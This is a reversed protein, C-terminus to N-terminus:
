PFDTGPLGPQLVVNTAATRQSPDFQDYEAALLDRMGNKASARWLTHCPITIACSKRLMRAGTWLELAGDLVLIRGTFCSYLFGSAVPLLRNGVGLGPKMYLFRTRGMGRENNHWRLLKARQAMACASLFCQPQRAFGTYNFDHSEFACVSDPSCGAPLLRAHPDSRAWCQTTNTNGM